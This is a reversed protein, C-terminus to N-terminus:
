KCDVPSVSPRTHSALTTPPDVQRSDIPSVWEKLTEQARRLSWLPWWLAAIGCVGQRNKKPLYKAAPEMWDTKFVWTPAPVTETPLSVEGHLSEGRGGPLTPACSHHPEPKRFCWAVSTWAQGGPGQGLMGPPCCQSAVCCHWIPWGVKDKRSFASGINVRIYIAARFPRPSVTPFGLVGRWGKWSPRAAGRDWPGLPGVGLASCCSVALM